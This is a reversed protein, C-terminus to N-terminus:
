RSGTHKGLFSANLNGPSWTAGSKLSFKPTAPTQNGSIAITRGGRQLDKDYSMSNWAPNLILMVKKAPKVYLELDMGYATLQGTNQFYDLQVVPDYASALVYHQKAWFISSPLSIIESTFRIGLDFNDSTEMTWENFIDQLTLNHQTFTELNNTYLSIIPIYMYPRMYNRGYNLYGNLQNNFQFASTADSLQGLDIRAFSRL